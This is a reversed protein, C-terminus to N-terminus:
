FDVELAGEEGSKGMRERRNVSERDNWWFGRFWRLGPDFRRVNGGLEM